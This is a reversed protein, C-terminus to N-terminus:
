CSCSFVTGRNSEAVLHGTLIQYNLWFKDEGVGWMASRASDEGHQVYWEGRDAYSRAASIVIEYELGAEKAFEEMWSRAQEVAEASRLIRPATMSEPVAPHGWDHRISTVSGPYMLVWIADGARAKERRFPNVIGIPKNTAHEPVAVAILTTVDEGQLRVPQSPWLEHGATVQIVAAHIADRYGIDPVRIQAMLDLKQEQAM